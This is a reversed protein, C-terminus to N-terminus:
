NMSLGSHRPVFVLSQTLNRYVRRPTSASYGPDTSQEYETRQTATRTSIDIRVLTPVSRFWQETTRTTKFDPRGTALLQNDVETRIGQDWGASFGSYTAPKGTATVVGAWSAGANTSLYVKFASVNETIVQQPVSSVWETTSPDGQSVYAGQDRVLCPIGNPKTGEPDPDLKLMQIRYRIMQAPILFVIGSGNLHKAKTPLGSSGSGTFAINPSAGAVVTVVNPPTTTPDTNIYGTEWSDKFIFVQGKQVQQAYPMNGCNINYTSNGPPAVAGSFALEAATKNPSPGQLTGEFALPQDIYFYVEDGVLPKAVGAFSDDAVQASGRKGDTTVPMNPLIFFPLLPSSFSPAISLDTLYMCAANLDDAVLDVSMRNRRVSSLSEGSTYYNSLSAQFVKAMGAMLVMTFVLAILLEVLSFGRKSTGVKAM